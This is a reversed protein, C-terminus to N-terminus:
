CPVHHRGNSIVSQFGAKVCHHIHTPFPLPEKFNSQFWKHKLLFSAAFNTFLWNCSKHAYKGITLKKGNFTYIVKAIFALKCFEILLPLNSRWSDPSFPHFWYNNERMGARTICILVKAVQPSQRYLFSAQASSWSIQRITMLKCCQQFVISSTRATKCIDSDLMKNPM